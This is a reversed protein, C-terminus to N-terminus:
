VDPDLLRQKTCGTYPYGLFSRNTQILTIKTETGPSVTIGESMLPYFGPSNVRLRVGTSLSNEAFNLANGTLLDNDSNYSYLVIKLFDIEYGTQEPNLTLCRYYPPHWIVKIKTNSCNFETNSWTHWVCDVMLSENEYDHTVNDPIIRTTAIYGFPMAAFGFYSSIIAIYTQWNEPYNREVQESLNARIRDLKKQYDRYTTHNNIKELEKFPNMNCITIDPFNPSASIQQLNMVSRFQFYKIFVTSVQYVLLSSCIILGIFWCTRLSRSEAMLARHIGRISTMECFKLLEKRM